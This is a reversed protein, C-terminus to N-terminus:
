VKARVFGFNSAETANKGYRYFGHTKNFKHKRLM